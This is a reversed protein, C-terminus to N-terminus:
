KTPEVACAGCWVPDVRTFCDLFSSKPWKLLRHFGGVGNRSGTAPRLQQWQLKKAFQAHNPKIQDDPEVREVMQLISYGNTLGGKLCGGAGEGELRRGGEWRGARWIGSGHEGM